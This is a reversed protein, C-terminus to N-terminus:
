SALAKSKVTNGAKGFATRLGKVLVNFVRFGLGHLGALVSPRLWFGQFRLGSLKCGYPCLLRM